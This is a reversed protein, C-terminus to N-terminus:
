RGELLELRAGDVGTSVFRATAPNLAFEHSEGGEGLVRVVRGGEGVSTITAAEFSGGFLAIRAREGVRPLPRSPVPVLRHEWILGLKLAM